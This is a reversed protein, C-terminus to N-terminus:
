GRQPSHPGRTLQGVIAAFSAVVDVGYFLTTWFFFAVFQRGQGAKVLATSLHGVIAAAYLAPIWLPLTGRAVFGLAAILIGANLAAIKGRSIPLGLTITREREEAWRELVTPTADGSGDDLLVTFLRDSPYDLASLAALTATIGAAENRAPVLLTVSPLPLREDLRSGAPRPGLWAAVMFAARRVTFVLLMAALLWGLVDFLWTM